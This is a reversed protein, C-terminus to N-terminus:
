WPIHHRLVDFLTWGILGWLALVPLFGPTDSDTEDPHPIQPTEATEQPVRALMPGDPDMESVLVPSCISCYGRCALPFQIREALDPHALLELRDVARPWQMTLVLHSAALGCEVCKQQNLWLVHGGAPPQIWHSVATM